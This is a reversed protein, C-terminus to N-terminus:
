PAATGNDDFLSAETLLKRLAPIDQPPADLADCFAQWRDAPLVFHLEDATDADGEPKEDLTVTVRKREPLCVPQLPRFVGNEYIAELHISM